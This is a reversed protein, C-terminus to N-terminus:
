GIYMNLHTGKKNEESKQCLSKFEVVFFLKRKFRM